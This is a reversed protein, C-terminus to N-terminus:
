EFLEDDIKTGHAYMNIIKEKQLNVLFHFYCRGGKGSFSQIIKKDGNLGKITSICLINMWVIKENKNNLMPVVQILYDEESKLNGGRIWNDEKTNYREIVFRLYNSMKQLESPTLNTQVYDPFKEICVKSSNRDIIVIKMSDSADRALSHFGSLLFIKMLCILFVILNKM